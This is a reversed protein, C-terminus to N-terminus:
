KEESDIHSYNWPVTVAPIDTSSTLMAVFGSCLRDPEAGNKIEHCMFVDQETVAKMADMLTSVCGNPFTGARFACTGCRTKAKPFRQLQDAEAVDCLRALEIGLERGEPTPRNPVMM